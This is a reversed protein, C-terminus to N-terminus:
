DKPTTLADEFLSAYREVIIAPAYHAELLRKAGAALHHRDAALAKLVAAAIATSTTVEALIGSSGDIILERTAGPCPTAAVPTGLAMAELMANSFGEYRSSSIFLDAAAITALVHDSHGVLHVRDGVDHSAALSELAAHDEGTGVITLAADPHAALIAPMAAILLDFGKQPALRGVALLAPQGALRPPAAEAQQRALQQTAA